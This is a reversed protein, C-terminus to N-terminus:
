GCVSVREFGVTGIVDNMGFRMRALCRSFTVHGPRKLEEEGHESGSKCDWLRSSVM